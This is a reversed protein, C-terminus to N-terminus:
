VSFLISSIFGYWCHENLCVVDTVNEDLHVNFNSTVNQNLM